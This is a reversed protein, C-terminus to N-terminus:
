KINLKKYVELTSIHIFDNNSEVGYLEKKEILDNWIKNMSFVKSKVNLFAEFNIVQLGTFIYKLDILKGRKVLNNKLDFDGNLSKDFSKKKNVVLIVCKAKKNELFLKEMLKLKKLHQSKWITDPNIILFPLHSFHQIANLVGGGTGLIKNKEEIIDIVLNFKNQNVYDIIQEKLYHVNIVVQKIGYLELFKLTNLLLTKDGIKLLPKPQDLTLPNLRKGFGAGLIMAKKIM